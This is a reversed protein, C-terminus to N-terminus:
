RRPSLLATPASLSGSSIRAGQEIIRRKNRNKSAWGSSVTWLRSPNTRSERRRRFDFALKRVSSHFASLRGIQGWIPSSPAIISANPDFKAHDLYKLVEESIRSVMLGKGGGRENRSMWEVHAGEREEYCMRCRREEEEMWYRKERERRTKGRRFRAMMKREGKYRSEKIRERRGQEDTDKDRKSLEVNMWRGKARLREVEESANGNWQHYKETKKKEMNLRASHGLAVKRGCGNKGYGDRIKGDTHSFLSQFAEAARGGEPPFSLHIMEKGGHEKKKELMENTYPVVAHGRDGEIVRRNEIIEWSRRVIHVGDNSGRTTIAEDHGLDM